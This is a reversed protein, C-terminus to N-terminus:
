EDPEPALDVRARPKRPRFRFLYGGAADGPVLRFRRHERLRALVEEGTAPLQDPHVLVATVGLEDLLDLSTRDPFRRLRSAREQYDAPRSSGYGNVLSFWHKTSAWVYPANTGFHPARSHLPIELLVTTDPMRAIREYVDPVARRPEVRPPAYLEVSMAVILGLAVIQGRRGAHRRRLAAMGLGALVTLGTLYLVGYRSAARLGAAPPFVTGVLALIPLDLSLLFGVLGVAAYGAVTARRRRDCRLEHWLGYAALGVAVVGPFFAARGGLEYFRPSWFRHIASTTALYSAPNAFSSPSSFGAGSIWPALLPWGALAAVAVSLAARSLFRAPAALIEPARALWLTGVLIVVMAGQYGSTTASGVVALGLLVPWCWSDDSRMRELALCAVALWVLYTAMIHPYRTAVHPNFAFLVAALLAAFRDRTLSRILAYMGLGSLLFGLLWAVNHTIQPDGTLLWAPVAVAGPFIASDAHRLSNEEPYFMNVDHLQTPAITLQRAISTVLWVHFLGDPYYDFSATAPALAVPSV